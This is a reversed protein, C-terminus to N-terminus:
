LAFVQNIRPSELCPRITSTSYSVQNLVIGDILLAPVKGTRTIGQQKLKESTAPWTDDYAHRIDNFEIGADKLFLSIASNTM